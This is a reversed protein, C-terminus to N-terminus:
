QRLRPYARAVRNERHGRSRSSDPIRPWCPAAPLPTRPTRPWARSLNAVRQNCAAKRGEPEEVNLAQVFFVLRRLRWLARVLARENGAFPSRMTLLENGNRIVRRSNTRRTEASPPLMAAAGKNLASAATGFVAAGRCMTM